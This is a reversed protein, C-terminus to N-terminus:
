FFSNNIPTVDQKMLVYGIAHTDTEQLSFPTNRTILEYACMGQCLLLPFSLSHFFSPFLLSFFFSPVFFFYFYFYIFNYHLRIDCISVYWHGYILQSVMISFTFLFPLLHILSHVFSYLTVGFRASLFIEPAM